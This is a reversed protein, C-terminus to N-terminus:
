VVVETAMQVTPFFQGHATFPIRDPLEVVAIEKMTKVDLTVLISKEKAGDLAVFTVVGDEEGGPGPIIDPEGVYVNPRSWYTEEGTCINKKAVAMNAYNEGDHWWQTAYLICYPLGTYKPNIKYFDSRSGLALHFDESLATLPKSQSSPGFSGDADFPFYIRKVHNRNTDGDRTQKDKFMKIDLAGDKGFPSQPFAGVDVIVGSSNEYANVTHVHFFHDDEPLDFHHVRNNKDVVKLGMWGEGIKGM